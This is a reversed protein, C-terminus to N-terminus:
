LPVSPCLSLLLLLLLLESYSYSYTLFLPVAPRTRAHERGPIARAPPVWGPTHRPAVPPPVLTPPQARPAVGPFPGPYGGRRVTVMHWLHLECMCGRSGGCILSGAIPWPRHFQLCVEQASAKLQLLWRPQVVSRLPRPGGSRSPMGLRSCRSLAAAPPM